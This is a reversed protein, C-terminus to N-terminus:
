SESGLLERSAFISLSKQAGVAGFRGPIHGLQRVGGSRETEGMRIM